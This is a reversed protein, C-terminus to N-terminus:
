PITVSYLLDGSLVWAGSGDPFSIVREPAPGDMAATGVLLFTDADYAELACTDALLPRQCTGVFVRSGDSSPAPVGSGILGAQLFSGSRLVQGSRTYIRTGAPNIGLRSTGRVSGHDDELVIPANVDQIDLRYLSNPSFGEGVYLVARDPSKLFEPAARIIRHSAVRRYTDGASRDIRVIWAFEGSAPNASVFVKGPAGVAVDWATTHGLSDGVVIETRGFTDTDLAVISGAGNLAVYLTSGDDSLDVGEPKSGVFAREVVENTSLSVVAVENLLPISVYMRDRRRDFAMDSGVANLEVAAGVLASVENSGASAGDTAREFVRYYYTQDSEVTRDIFTSANLDTIVTVSTSQVSVGP